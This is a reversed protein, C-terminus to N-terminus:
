AKWASHRPKSVRRGLVDIREFLAEALLKRESPEADDWLEPLERLSGIAQERTLGDARAGKSQAHVDALVGDLGLQLDPHTPQPLDKFILSGALPLSETNRPGGLSRTSDRNVLAKSSSIAAAASSRASAGPAPV